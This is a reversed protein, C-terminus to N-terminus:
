MQTLQFRSRWVCSSFLFLTNLQSVSPDQVLMMVHRTSDSVILHDTLLQTIVQLLMNIIFLGAHKYSTNLQLTKRHSSSSLLNVIKRRLTRLRSGMEGFLVNGRSEALQMVSVATNRLFYSGELGRIQNKWHNGHDEAWRGIATFAAQAQICTM